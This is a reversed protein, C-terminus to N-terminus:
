GDKRCFTSFARRLVAKVLQLMRAYRWQICFSPSSRKVTRGNREYAEVLFLVDEPRVNKEFARQNDGCLVYSGDKSLKVIRHLVYQGTARKYLIIDGKKIGEAKVLTVSDREAKLTPLMSTGMPYLTFSGGCAVAESIVGVTDALEFSEKM